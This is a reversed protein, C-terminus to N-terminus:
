PMGGHRRKAPPWMISRYSAPLYIITGGIKESGKDDRSRGCITFTGETEFPVPKMPEVATDLKLTPVELKFECKKPDVNKTTAWEGVAADFVASFTNNGAEPDVTFTTDARAPATCLALALVLPTLRAIM